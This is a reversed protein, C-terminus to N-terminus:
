ARGEETDRPKRAALVTTRSTLLAWGNQAQLLGENQELVGRQKRRWRLRHRLRGLCLFPWAPVALAVASAKVRDAHFTPAALGARIAAYALYYPTVPHIHGSLRRPDHGDLPLPEFLLPFGTFLTRL